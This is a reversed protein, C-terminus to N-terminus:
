GMQVGSRRRRMTLAMAGLLLLVARGPEPAVVVLVGHELFLTRDWVLGTTLTPLVLDEELRWDGAQPNTWVLSNWNMLDLMDGEQFLYGSTNDLVILAGAELTLDGTIDIQDHVGAFSNYDFLSNGDFETSSSEFNIGALYGALDNYITPNSGFTSDNYVTGFASMEFIAKPLLSQEGRQLSLGGEIALLAVPTAVADGANIVAQEKVVVNANIVGSGGVRGGTAVVAGSMNGGTGTANFYLAGEQLRTGGEHTTAGSFTASGTGSKVIEGGGGIAYGYDTDANSNIHLRAGSAITVESYSLAGGDGIELEGENILTSGTHSADGTLVQTGEGEKVLSIGGAGDDYISGGYVQTQGAGVEVTV